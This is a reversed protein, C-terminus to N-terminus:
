YQFLLFVRVVIPVLIYWNDSPYLHPHSFLKIGTSNSYLSSFSNKEVFILILYCFKDRGVVQGMRAENGDRIVVFLPFFIIYNFNHYFFFTDQIYCHLAKSFNRRFYTQSSFLTQLPTM